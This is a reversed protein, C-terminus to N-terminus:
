HAPPHPPTVVTAGVVLVRPRLGGRVCVHRAAAANRRPLMLDGCNPLAERPLALDRAGWLSGFSSLPQAGDGIYGITSCHMENTPAYQADNCGDAVERSGETCDDDGPGGDAGEIGATYDDEDDDGGGATYDDEDDGPAGVTYDDEGDGGAAMEPDKVADGPEGDTGETYDDEDDGGGGATYDDEGDGPVGATYEGDGDGDGGAMYDDERDGGATYPEEDDDGPVGEACDDEEDDGGGGATYDDADDRPAGATYDDDGDDGEVDGSAAEYTREDADGPGGMAYRGEDDGGAFTSTDPHGTHVFNNM